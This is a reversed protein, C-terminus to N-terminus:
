RGWRERAWNLSLHQFGPKILVFYNRCSRLSTWFVLANARASPANGLFNLSRIAMTKFPDCPATSPTLDNAPCAILAPAVL